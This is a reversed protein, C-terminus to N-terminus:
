NLKVMPGKIDVGSPGAKVSGAASKLEIETGEIKVNGSAKVGIDASGEIMIKDASTLNTAANSVVTLDAEATLSCAAMTTIDLNGESHITITPPSAGEDLVLKCNEDATILEIKKDADGETFRLVHGSRTRFVKVDNKSDALADQVEALAEGTKAHKIVSGLIVPYRHDGDTFGVIVEDGIEPFALWGGSEGLYTSALRCWTEVEDGHTLKVKVRGVAEPDVLDIVSATWLSHGAAPSPERHVGFSDTPCCRFENRYIQDGGEFVHTIETIVYNGCWTSPLGAIEVISGAHLAMDDCRGHAQALSALWAAKLSKADNELASSQDVAFEPLANGKIGFIRESAKKAKDAYPHSARQEPSASSTGAKLTKSDKFPWQDLDVNGPRVKAALGFEWLTGGDGTASLTRGSGTFRKASKIEQGDYYVLIGEQALLRRGFAWDTEGRQVLVEFTTSTSEISASLSREGVAANFWDAATVESAVRDRPVDDLRM